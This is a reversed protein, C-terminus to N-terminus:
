SPMELSLIHSLWEPRRSDSHHNIYSSRSFRSVRHARGFSLWTRPIAPRPQLPPRRHRSLMRRRHSTPAALSHYTSPPEIIIDTKRREDTNGASQMRMLSKGASVAVAARSSNRLASVKSKVTVGSDPHSTANAAAPSWSCHLETPFYGGEAVLIERLSSNADPLIRMLEREKRLREIVSSDFSANRLSDSIKDPTPAPPIETGAGFYKVMVKRRTTVHTENSPMVAQKWAALLQERSSVTDLFALMSSRLDLCGGLLIPDEFHTLEQNPSLPGEMLSSKFSEKHAHFASEDLAALQQPVTVAWVHECEGEVDDPLMKEGQVYCDITLISSMESVDGGVVYGLEKRTRLEAFVVQSYIQSVLGLLVRSEVTATGLLLTIITVHNQDGERPNAKRIELPVAPKVIPAVREVADSTIASQAGLGDLLKQHLAKAEEDAYNGLIVSTVHFKGRRAKEVAHKADSFTIEPGKSIADLMEAKAHMRPTLLVKQDAMAMKIPERTSDSFDAKLAAINRALSANDVTDLASNMEKLMHDTTNLLNPSFGSLWLYVGTHTESVSFYFGKYGVDALRLNLEEALLHMGVQLVVVDRPSSAHSASKHARLTMSAEIWPQPHVWGKRFWLEATSTKLLPKPGVGWVQSMAETDRETKAYDLSMKGPIGDIPGPLVLAIPGDFSINAARLRQALSAYLQKADVDGSANTTGWNKWDPAWEELTSVNYRVGYHDLTLVSDSNNDWLQGANPMVLGVNMRAPTLQSLVELVRALNPEETLDDASLLDEAEVRTMGEALTSAAKSAEM